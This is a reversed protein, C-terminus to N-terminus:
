QMTGALQYNDLSADIANSTKFGKGTLVAVSAFLLKQGNSIIYYSGNDRVLTGDRFKVLSGVSLLLDATNAKVVRSLSFGYTNFVAMSEFGSKQDNQLWWITQGDLVLAGDPHAQGADTIAPGVPYDKLDIKPLNAFSYGLSKFVSATAFGRKTNGTGIMYVTKNDSADLVLTGAMAKLINTGSSPLSKDAESAVVVQGFNYGYSKYEGPDRFGYRLGNQILYVTQGDVVLTGNPHAGAASAASSIQSVTSVPMGGGGGGGGGSSTSCVSVTGPTVTVAAATSSRLIIQSYANNNNCTTSAISNALNVKDSSRITVLSDADLNVLLNDANVKYGTMTSGSVVTLTIQSDAIYVSLDDTLSIENGAALAVPAILILAAIVAFELIFQRLKIM